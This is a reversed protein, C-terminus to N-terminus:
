FYIFINKLHHKSYIPWQQFQLLQSEHQRDSSSGILLSLSEIKIPAKNLHGTIQFSLPNCVRVSFRVNGNLDAKDYPPFLTPLPIQFELPFLFYLHPIQFELFLNILYSSCDLLKELM